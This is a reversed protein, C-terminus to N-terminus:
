NRDLESELENLMDMEEEFREVSKSFKRKIYLLVLGSGFVVGLSFGVMISLLDM